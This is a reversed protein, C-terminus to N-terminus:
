KLVKTQGVSIMENLSRIFSNWSTLVATTPTDTSECKLWKAHHLVSRFTQKFVFYFLPCNKRRTFMDVFTFTLFFRYGTRYFEMRYGVIVEQVSVINMTAYRHTMVLVNVRTETTGQKTRKVIGVFNVPLPVSCWM